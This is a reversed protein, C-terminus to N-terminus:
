SLLRKKRDDNNINSQCYISQIPDTNIDQQRITINISGVITQDNDRIDVGISMITPRSTTVAAPSLSDGLHRTKDSLHRENIAMSEIQATVHSMCYENNTYEEGFSAGMLLDGMSLSEVDGDVHSM